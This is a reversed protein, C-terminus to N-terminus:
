VLTSLGHMAPQYPGDEIPQLHHHGDPHCHEPIITPYALPAGMGLDCRKTMAQPMAKAAKIRSITRRRRSRSSYEQSQISAAMPYKNTASKGLSAIHTDCSMPEPLGTEANVKMPSKKRKRM